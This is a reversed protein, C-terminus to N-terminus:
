GIFDSARKFTTDYRIINHVQVEYPGLADGLFGVLAGPSESVINCVITPSGFM